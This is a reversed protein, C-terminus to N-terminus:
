AKTAHALAAKEANQAKQLAYVVAYYFDETSLTAGSIVDIKNIDQRQLLEQPLIPDIYSVPYHTSSAVVQVNTIKDQKLTVAVEIAGIQTEGIGTYTGDKYKLKVAAKAKAKTKVKTKAKAKVKAKTKVKAKVTPHKNVKNKTVHNTAHHASQASQASQAHVTAASDVASISAVTLIAASCIALLKVSPRLKYMFILGWRPNLLSEKVVQGVGNSEVIRANEQFHSGDCSEQM